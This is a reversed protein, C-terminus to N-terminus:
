TIVKLFVDDGSLPLHTVALFFDLSFKGLRNDYEINKKRFKLTNPGLM